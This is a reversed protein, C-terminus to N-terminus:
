RKSHTLLLQFTQLGHWLVAYISSLLLFFIAVTVTMGPLAVPNLVGESIDFLVGFPNVLIDWSNWRLSRGLYIALGCLVFLAGIAAHARMRPQRKLLQLHVLYISLYGSLFANFIFSSFLVADFLLNIEGTDQLHILDSMIYFSNPLLSLWLISLLINLKETWPKQQLRRALIYAFLMPLWALILNWFLFWYRFNDTGIVRLGFLVLCMANAAVISWILRHQQQRLETIHSSM